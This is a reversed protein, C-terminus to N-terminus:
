PVDEGSVSVASWTWTHDAAHGQLNGPADPSLRVEFCYVAYDAAAASVQQTSGADVQASLVLWEDSSGLIYRPNGIFSNADCPPVPKEPTLAAPVITNVVRYDLHDTIAEQSGAGRLTLEAGLDSHSTTRVLVPAYVVAGPYMDTADFTMENVGHGNTWGSGVDLEIGFSGASFAGTAVVNDSWAALTAAAGLGLVLGGSLLAKRQRSPGTNRSRRDPHLLRM